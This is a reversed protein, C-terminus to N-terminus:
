ETPQVVRHMFVTVGTDPAGWKSGRRHVLEIAPGEQFPGHRREGDAYTRINDVRVREGVHEVMHGEKVESFTMFTVDLKVEGVAGGKREVPQDASLPCL